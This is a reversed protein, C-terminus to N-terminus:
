LTKLETEFAQRRAVDKKNTSSKFSIAKFNKTLFIACIKSFIALITKCYPLFFM